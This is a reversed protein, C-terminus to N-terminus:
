VQKKWKIKGADWVRDWGLEQMAQWETKNSVDIGFKRAIDAKMFNQRNHRTQYDNTYWYAPGLIKDIEFGNAAYVAGNSHANDSFSVLDGQYNIDALAYSLMRSFLGPYTASLDTVFRTLELYTKRYAFGMVGVLQDQYYAGLIYQQGKVSGQIHNADLLPTAEQYTVKQLRCKRAGIKPKKVRALYQIKSEIVPWTDRIDDEFWTYLSIGQDNCRKWKDFHYNKNQLKFHSHWYLGGVEIASNHEPLYFDLEKGSLIVRDNQIYPIKYLDLCSKVQNEIWTYNRVILESANYKEVYVAATTFDVKLQKAIENLTKGTAFDLFAASNFLISKQEDTFHRQSCNKVGYRALNAQAHQQKTSLLKSPHDVGYKQKNTQKIKDQIIKREESTKANWIENIQFKFLETQSYSNAGYRSENTALAKAKVCDAQAPNEVGYRKLNTAKTKAQIKSCQQPNSVGLSNQFGQTRKRSVEAKQDETLSNWWQSKQTAINPEKSPNDVGYKKINTTKRRQSIGAIEDADKDKWASAVKSAVAHKCCECNKATGCFGYGRHFSLFTKTQGTPCIAQKDEHMVHYLRQSMSIEDPLFNTQSVVWDRLHPLSNIRRASAGLSNVDILDIVQNRM